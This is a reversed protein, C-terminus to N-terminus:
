FPCPDNPGLVQGGDNFAIDLKVDDPDEGYREVRTNFESEPNTECFKAGPRHPHAYAGCYCQGREKGNSARMNREKDWYFRKCGCNMCKRRVLYEDVKMRFMNRTRCQMCRYAFKSM